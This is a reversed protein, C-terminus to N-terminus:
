FHIIGLEISTKIAEARSTVNLKQYINTLHAKVTRESIGMDFAIEKSRFGRAVAQLVLMEKETLLHNDTKLKEQPEKHLTSEFVKSAVNSQLLIDGRIAAEITNFLNERSADKLLYGKAGLQLGQIMLKEENYTTLILVPVKIQLTQMERLMDLGSMMPMNLDLLVLDPSKEKIVDIGKGGDEAEGVVEFREDTELILKLGERVVYHDDVIVIRYSM